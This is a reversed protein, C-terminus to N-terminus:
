ADPFELYIVQPVGDERDWIEAGAVQDQPNGNTDLELGVIFPQDLFTQDDLAIAYHYAGRSEIQNLIHVGRLSPLEWFSSLISASTSVYFSIPEERERAQFYLIVARLNDDARWMAVRLNDMLPLIRPETPM